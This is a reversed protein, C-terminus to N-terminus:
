LNSCPAKKRGRKKNSVAGLAASATALSHVQPITAVAALIAAATLTPMPQLSSERVVWGYVLYCMIQGKSQVGDHEENVFSICVQSTMSYLAMYKHDMCMIELEM